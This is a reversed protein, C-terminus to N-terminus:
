LREGRADDALDTPANRHLDPRRNPVLFGNIRGGEKSNPPRRASPRARIPSSLACQEYGICLLNGTTPDVQIDMEYPVRDFVRLGHVSAVIFWAFASTLFESVMYGEPIAGSTILASVDNNTTGTRLETKFLREGAWSLAVPLVCKRARVM